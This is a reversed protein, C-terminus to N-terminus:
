LNSHTKSRRSGSRWQVEGVEIQIRKSSNFGDDKGISILYAGEGRELLGGDRNGEGVIANLIFLGGQSSIIPNVTYQGCICLIYCEKVILRRLRSSCRRITM